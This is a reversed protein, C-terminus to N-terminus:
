MMFAALAAAGLRRVSNFLPAAALAASTMPNWRAGRRAAACAAAPALGAGLANTRLM